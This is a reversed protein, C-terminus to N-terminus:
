SGVACGFIARYTSYFAFAFGVFLLFYDIMKQWFKLSSSMLKLHFSAPLVFSLLSCVTGGTLSMLQAFGSASTALIALAVVVLIRSIQSLLWGKAQSNGCIKQSWPSSILKRETIEHIPHVSMPFVFAISVCLCLKVSLASWNNPLNLTIIEETEEGYAMYGSVGFCISLLVVVVFAQLLVTPFKRRKSMSAELPLTMGSGDLSYVAVGLVFPIAGLGKFAIRSDFGKDVLREADEKMVIFMAFVNCLTAFASFPSLLSISRIFSLAIQLPLIFFFIFSSPPYYHTTTFSNLASSLNQGVFLFYAVSSGIYSVLILFETIFRGTLGFAKAGVDGYTQSQPMDDQADEEIKKRCQVLLLMSYYMAIAAVVLALSGSLWGAVRFAYPLGLAGTGLVSVLVNGLTQAPTAKRNPRSEELLPSGRGERERYDM